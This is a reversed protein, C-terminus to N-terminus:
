PGVSASFWMLTFCILKVEPTKSAQMWTQIYQYWWVMFNLREGGLNCRLAWLNHTFSNTAHHLQISPVGCALKNSLSVPPVTNTWINACSGTFTFCLIALYPFLLTVYGSTIIKKRSQRSTLWACCGSDTDPSTSSSHVGNLGQPFSSTSERFSFNLIAMLWSCYIQWLKVTKAGNAFSADTSLSGPKILLLGKAQGWSRQACAMSTLPSFWVQWLCIVEDLLRWGM